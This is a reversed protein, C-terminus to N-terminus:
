GLYSAAGKFINVDTLGPINKCFDPGTREFNTLRGLIKGTSCTVAEPSKSLFKAVINVNDDLFHLAKGNWFTPLRQIEGEELGSFWPTNISTIQVEQFSSYYEPSTVLQGQPLFGALMLAQFGSGIGLVLGDRENVLDQIASTVRPDKLISAVYKGGGDPQNGLPMGAPLVLGQSAKIILALNVLSEKIDGKSSNRFVFTEAKCGAEQIKRTLEYEGHNGPVIPILFSPKTTSELKFRPAKLEKTQPVQVQKEKGEPYVNSNVPYVPELKAMYKDRIPGLDITENHNKSVIEIHFNEVTHGILNGELNEGLVAEAKVDPALELVFDGYGATFFDQIQNKDQLKESFEEAFKLGIRNGLSMEFIAQGLGKESLAYASLVKGEDVLKAIKKYFDRINGEQKLYVVQNGGSKFEPSLVKSTDGLCVAVSILTPPVHLDEFSGSMSDKGGIAGLGLDKQAKLAGLLASFPKGWKVPDGDLREFYEQFSLWCKDINGGTAVLKAVSHIVAQYAGLFPNAESLYPDFGFSALSCSTTEGQLVPIRSAMAQIPTEQYLGGYPALVTDGGATFDFMQGLGKQSCSNLGNALDDLGLKLSAPGAQSVQDVQSFAPVRVRTYKKAGNSDLFERSLDVINEGRFTMVLRGNSTIHAIVTAELNEQYALSLFKDTDEKNIVVAMREQSESIAIETGDLGPYKLPVKDLDIHISDALEGVAVSVGGAGFDNCRKILKALDPNRFLRQIKREEPANGKQVQPGSKELSSSDHSMSSGTAGGLGDRGTKGGLLIVVDGEAPEERIVQHAPAAAVVAGMELRKAQYGPHYIERALGSPIGIQNGYSSYGKAAEKSITRQPLKGTLTDDFDLLPDYAGSVRLAQYVYARGSLPDRIAGGLCTAAGGFPEIETPHNHTENKFMFLWPETKGDVELDFHVSCANVEPSQDLDTLLGQHVLHKAGITAMDMLTVPRDSRDLNARIEKYDAFAAEVAPDEIQAEVIETFFTTHRCHDSWYTDIMKLETYSPNRGESKFYDRCFLLDEADMALSHVKLFDEADKETLETFDDVYPVPDPEPDYTRLASPLDLSGLRSEVPNILYDQIKGLDKDTLPGYLLILKAYEVKPKLGQNILGINEACSDAQQDFQGPLLEIPIVFDYPPLPGALNSLEYQRDYNSDLFINDTAPNAMIELVSRQFVNPDLGETDYRHIIRLDEIKHIHLFSKLDELLDAAQSSFDKKNEVYIRQVKTQSLTM